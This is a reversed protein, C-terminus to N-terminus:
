EGVGFHRVHSVKLCPCSRTEGLKERQIWIRKRLDDVIGDTERPLCTGIM